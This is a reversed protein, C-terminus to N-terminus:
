FVTTPFFVFFSNGHMSLTLFNRYASSSSLFDKCYECGNKKLRQAANIKAITGGHRNYPV